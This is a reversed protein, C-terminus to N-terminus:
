IKALLSSSGLRSPALSRTGPAAWHQGPLKGPWGLSSFRKIVIEKTHQSEQLDPGPPRSLSPCYVLFMQLCAFYNAYCYRYCLSSGLTRHSPKHWGVHYRITSGQERWNLRNCITLRPSYVPRVPRAGPTPPPLIKNQGPDFRPFIENFLLCHPSPSPYKSATEREALMWPFLSSMKAFLIM